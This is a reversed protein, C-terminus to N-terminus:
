PVQYRPLLNFWWRSAFDVKMLWLWLVRTVQIQKIQHRV